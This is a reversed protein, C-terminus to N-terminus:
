PKLHNYMSLFKYKSREQSNGEAGGFVLTQWEEELLTKDVRKVPETLPYNFKFVESLTIMLNREIAAYNSLYLKIPSPIDMLYAESCDHMLADFKSGETAALACRCSHEAVSYFVPLHGGFRPQMSLAHAIDEICFMEPKPNMVDVYIGTFTRICGATYLDEEYGKSKKM